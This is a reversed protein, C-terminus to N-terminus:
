PSRRRRRRTGRRARKMQRLDRLRIEEAELYDKMAQDPDFSKTMLPKTAKIFKVVRKLDDRPIYIPSSSLDTRISIYGDFASIEVRRTGTQVIMRVPRKHKILFESLKSRKPM